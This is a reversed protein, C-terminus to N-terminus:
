IVDRSLRMLFGKRCVLYEPSLVLKTLQSDDTNGETVNKLKSDKTSELSSEKATQKMWKCFIEYVSDAERPAFIIFNSGSVEQLQCFATGTVGCYCSRIIFCYISCSLSM